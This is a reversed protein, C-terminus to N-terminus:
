LNRGYPDSPVTLTNELSRGNIFHCTQTVVIGKLGAHDLIEYINKNM